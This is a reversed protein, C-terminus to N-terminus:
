SGPEQAALVAASCRRGRLIRRTATAGLQRSLMAGAPPPRAEFANPNPNCSSVTAFFVFTGLAVEPLLSEFLIRLAPM